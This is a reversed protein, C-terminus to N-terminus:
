IFNQECVILRSIGRYNIYDSIDGNTYVPATNCELPDPNSQIAAKIFM